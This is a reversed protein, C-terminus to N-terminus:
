SGNKIAEIILDSLKKRAQENSGFHESTLTINKDQLHKKVLLFQAKFFEKTLDNKNDGIQYITPFSKIVSGFGISKSLIFTQPNNWEEEFADRVGCFLNLILKYIISDKEQVFYDRLILSTDKELEIKNKIRRTDEDANKTMLELLYKVFTGQSLSAVTQNQEKKGLMKLRNFFPSEEDRNLARATEHCTKYPSRHESLSFLDYILSMSVKTQKSNIISFVYAKEENTLNFMMIIPLEFRELKNSKILGKIRHQGDIIEGIKSNEDFEIYSDTLQANAEDYVSIIIPTPFTADMDGCYDAIENIRAISEDRQVAMPNSSRPQTDTIRAVMEADLATLYFTGIPQTVEIFKIQKM